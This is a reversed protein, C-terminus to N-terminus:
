NGEIDSGPQLSMTNDPTARRQRAGILLALGTATVLFLLTQRNTRADTCAESIGLRAELRDIEDEADYMQGFADTAARASKAYSPVSNPLIGGPLGPGLARCYVRDEGYTFSAPFLYLWGVLAILVVALLRKM